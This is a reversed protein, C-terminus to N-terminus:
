RREVAIVGCGCLSVVTDDCGRNPAGNAIGSRKVFTLPEPAVEISKLSRRAGRSRGQVGPGRAARLFFVV